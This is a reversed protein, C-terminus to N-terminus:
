GRYLGVPAGAVGPELSFVGGAQPTRALVEDPVGDRLSTVYLTRLGPGGFCPMTPHTVPMEVYGVLEGAQSFRNLRGASVGCSWYCGEEDMAAGDPRGWEPRMAVFPRREGVAGTRADYPYRWIAAARSDSHYLIGGDPSWALGNSVILGSAVRECGGDPDLRYLSGTPEKDPRDDMSGAFFRGEPSVKGDNLRNTPIQPEPHHVFALEGRDPDFLHFGNGLALVLGGRERLGLSAVAAPLGWSEHAGSAPTWRHVKAALIDAFYLANERASWVPSEGLTARVDLACAVALDLRPAKAGAISAAV